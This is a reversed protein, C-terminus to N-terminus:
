SGIFSHILTLFMRFKTIRKTISKELIQRCVSSSQCITLPNNQSNSQYYIQANLLCLILTLLIIIYSM